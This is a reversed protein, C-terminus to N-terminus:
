ATVITKTAVVGNQTSIIVTLNTSLKIANNVVSDITVTEGYNLIKPDIVDNGFTSLCWQGTVAPCTNIYTLEDTHVASGITDTYTIFVNFKEFEWLKEINNNEIVFSVNPTLPIASISNIIISTKVLKNELDTRQMSSDSVSMIKDTLGGLSFMLYIIGFMIIGGSIAVSLGM